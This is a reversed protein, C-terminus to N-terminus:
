MQFADRDRAPKRKSSGLLVAPSGSLVAGLVNGGEAAAEEENEVTVSFALESAGEGSDVALWNEVPFGDAAEALADFDLGHFAYVVRYRHAM